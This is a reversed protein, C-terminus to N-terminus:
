KKIQLNSPRAPLKSEAGQFEFAGIDWNGVRPNGEIDTTFYRSFDLGRDRACADSEDLYFFNNTGAPTYSSAFSPICHFNTFGTAIDFAAVSTYRVGDWTMATGGNPGEHIINHNVQIDSTTIDLDYTYFTYNYNPNNHGVDYLLNNAVICNTFRASADPGRFMICELANGVVTNNLVLVSDVWYTNNQKIYIARWRKEHYSDGGVWLLNNYIKIHGINRNNFQEFYIIAHSGDVSHSNYMHFVNNYVRSWGGLVQM